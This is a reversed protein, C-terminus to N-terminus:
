KKVSCLLLASMQIILVLIVVMQDGLKLSSEFEFCSRM